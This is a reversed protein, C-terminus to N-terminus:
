IIVSGISRSWNKLMFIHFIIYICTLTKILCVTIVSLLEGSFTLKRTFPRLLFARELRANPPSRNRLCLQSQNISSRDFASEDVAPAFLKMRNRSLLVRFFESLNLGLNSVEPFFSSRCFIMLLFSMKNPSKSSDM